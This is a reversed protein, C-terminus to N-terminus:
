PKTIENYFHEVVLAAMLIVLGVVQICVGVMGVNVLNWERSSKMLLDKAIPLFVLIPGLFVGWDFLFDLTKQKVKNM